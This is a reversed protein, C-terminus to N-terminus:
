AGAILGDAAVAGTTMAREDATQLTAIVAAMAAVAFAARWIGNAQGPEEWFRIQDLLLDAAVLRLGAVVLAAVTGAKEIWAAFGEERRRPGPGVGGTTRRQHPHRVAWTM